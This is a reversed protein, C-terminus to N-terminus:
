KDPREANTIVLAGVEHDIFNSFGAMVGNIISMLITLDASLDNSRSSDLRIKNNTPIKNDTALPAAAVAPSKVM